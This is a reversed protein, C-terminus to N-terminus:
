CAFNLVMFFLLSDMIREHIIPTAIPLAAMVPINLLLIKEFEEMVRGPPFVEEVRMCVIGRLGM